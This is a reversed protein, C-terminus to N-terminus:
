PWIMVKKLFDFISIVGYFSMKLTSRVGAKKSFHSFGDKRFVLRLYLYVLWLYYRMRSMYKPAEHLRLFDYRWLKAPDAEEKEQQAWLDTGPLVTLTAFTALFIRRKRVFDALKKYERAPKGPDLM